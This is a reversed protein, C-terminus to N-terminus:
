IKTKGYLMEWLLAETVARSPPMQNAYQRARQVIRRKENEIFHAFNRIFKKINATKAMDITLREALEKPPVKPHRLRRDAYWLSWFSCFGVPDGAQKFERQIEERTQIGVRPCFDAASLFEYGHKKASQSIIKDLETGKFVKDVTSNDYVGYPEFREIQKLTKDIIMYNYHRYENGEFKAILYVPVIVFQTNCWDEIMEWFPEEDTVYTWKLNQRNAYWCLCFDCFDQGFTPSRLSSPKVAVCVKDRYKRLMWLMGVMSSALDGANEELSEELHAINDGLSIIRKKENSLTKIRKDWCKAILDKKTLKSYGKVNKKKCEDRLEKVTLDNGGFPTQIEAALTQKDFFMAIKQCMVSKTVNKSCGISLSNCMGLLEDRGWGTLGKRDACNKSKFHEEPNKITQSILTMIETKTNTSNCGKIRHKQCFDLLDTKHWAKSVTEDNSM